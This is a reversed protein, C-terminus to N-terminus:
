KLKLLRVLVFLATFAVAVADAAVVAPFPSVVVVVSVLAAVVVVGDSTAVSAFFFSLSTESEALQM